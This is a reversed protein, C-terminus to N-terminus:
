LIIALKRGFRDAIPGLALAGVMMGILGISFVPGFASPGLGWSKALVPAVYAIAQTDFGDLVTVAGCLGVTLTPFSTWRGQDILRDVDVPADSATM